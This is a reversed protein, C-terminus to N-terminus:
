NLYTITNELPTKVVEDKLVNLLNAQINYIKELCRNVAANQFVEDKGIFDGIYTQFFISNREDVTLYRTFKFVINNKVDRSFLFKGIIQDRLRMHNLILKSIAKNFVWSQVYEAENFEIENFDYVDFDPITLIDYLNINDYFSDFIPTNGNRSYVINRDSSGDTTPMTTFSYLTNDTTYNFLYFLYKGITEQPLSVFKKYINKNSVVYFINSDSQSFHIDSFVESDKIISSLPIITKTSFDDSYKLLLNNNSLIYINGYNDNKIRMPFASLLDRQINYTFEWNLNEDYRKVCLNGSDLVYINNDFSCVGRPSNFEFKGSIDGFGGIVKQFFLRNKLINDDTFFGTGNYKFLKNASLDLILLSNDPGRTIDNIYGFDIGTPTEYNYDTTSLLVNITSQNKDSSMLILKPGTTAILGYREGEPNNTAYILKLNDLDPLGVSSLPQFQQTSMAYYWTFKTSGSSVGAIATSSLPILSSAIKCSKYIYNFNDYLHKVKLNLLGATVTDNPAIKIKDLNYPLTLNYGAFRDYILGSQSFIEQINM